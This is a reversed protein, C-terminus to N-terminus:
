REDVAAMNSTMVTMRSNRPSPLIYFICIFLELKLVTRFLFTMVQDTSFQDGGFTSVCPKIGGSGIAMLLLGMM